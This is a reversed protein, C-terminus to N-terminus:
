NIELILTQSVMEFVSVRVFMFIYYLYFLQNKPKKTSLVQRTMLVMLKKSLMFLIYIYYNSFFIVNKKRVKTLEIVLWTFM